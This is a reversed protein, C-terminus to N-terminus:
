YVYNHIPTFNSTMTHTTPAPPPPPPPPRGGGGGGGGGRARPQRCHGSVCRSFTVGVANNEWLVNWFLMEATAVKEHPDVSVAAGRCNAFRHVEHLIETEYRHPHLPCPHPHIRITFRISCPTRNSLRTFTFTATRNASDFVTSHIIQTFHAPTFHIAHGSSNLRAHHISHHREILLTSHSPSVM